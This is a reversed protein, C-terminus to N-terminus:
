RKPFFAHAYTREDTRGIYDITRKAAWTTVQHHIPVLAADDVAIKVADQFLALRKKDDVTRLGEELAADM